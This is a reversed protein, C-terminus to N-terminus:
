VEVFEKLIAPDPWPSEEAFREAEDLDGAIRQKMEEIDQLSLIQLDLISKQFRQIPDQKRWAELEEPDKKQHLVMCHDEFRYTKCEILTPGEGSRAMRLAKSAHEYVAEVDNGDVLVGPINYAAARAAVSGGATVDQTRTTAAYVNNECIYVIPLKLVSAMNLSEHFTGQNAAGDGFFCAVAQNKGRYMCAYAAGLGLPIGGGVIGNGGLLGLEECFIHMSGGHGRSYGTAKGMLEALMYRIDAGKAICHGHGRHTSVVYDDKELAACVGTASAEEGIYLHLAGYIKGETFLRKAREEFMRIRLMTELMRIQLNRGITM